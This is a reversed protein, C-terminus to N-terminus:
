RILTAARDWRSRLVIDRLKRLTSPITVKGADAGPPPGETSFLVLVARGKILRRPVTGWRRSDASDNRHDGLLFYESPPVELPPFDEPERYLPNLYPEDLPRGDVFVFGRRLEVTEGPMGIVRKIFDREPEHPHRFVVVDGREVRRTPLLRRELEFSVPAYSFRNVLIYDGPLVTDEMSGSPIESHQFVFGRLFVFVVVCILITEAYERLTSKAPPVAITEAYGVRTGM